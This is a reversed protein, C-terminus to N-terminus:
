WAFGEILCNFFQGFAQDSENAFITHVPHIGVAGCCCLAACKVPLWLELFVTDSEDRGELATDSLDRAENKFGMRYRAAARSALISPNNPFQGLAKGSWMDAEQFEELEYLLWLQGLWADLRMPDEGLAASCSQMASELDGRLEHLRAQELYYDADRIANIPAARTPAYQKGWEPVHEELAPEGTSDANDYELNSFRGPSM